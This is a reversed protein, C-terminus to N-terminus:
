KAKDAELQSRIKMYTDRQKKYSRALEVKEAQLARVRKLLEMNEEKMTQMVSQIRKESAMNKKREEEMLRSLRQKEEWSQMSLARCLPLAHSRRVAVVLCGCALHHM